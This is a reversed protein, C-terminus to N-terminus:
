ADLAEGDVGRLTWGGRRRLYVLYYAAFVAMFALNAVLSPRGVEPDVLDAWVVAALALLAAVPALPFLPMRYHGGSTTGNIRGAIAAISVGAYIVVLGNATLMVLLHLDLLCCAATAAGMILAAIWPSGFRPHVAGIWRNWAAPWVGDRASAYLQRANILSIAIMANIIAFAVGLSIAKDLWAGGEAQIFAPLPAPAALVGHLDGAGLLFGTVPVLEAVAAIGLSWFVVWAMRTRAEYMEEGFFVAGGYGNFAYVAGATAMGIMAFSAPQLAGAANLTVPHLLV